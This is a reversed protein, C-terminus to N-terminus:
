KIGIVMYRDYVNPFEMTGQFEVSSLNLKDALNEVSSCVNIHDEPGTYNNSQAIVISGPAVADLWSYDKFHECSTNIVIDSKATTEMAYPHFVDLDLFEFKHVNCLARNIHEAFRKCRADKDIVTYHSIYNDVALEACISPLTGLWGGLITIRYKKDWGFNDNGFIFNELKNALWIKSALQGRSLADRIEDFAIEPNPQYFYDMIDTIRNVSLSSWCLVENVNTNEIM